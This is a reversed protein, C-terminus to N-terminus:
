AEAPVVRTAEIARTITEMGESIREALPGDIADAGCSTCHDGPVGEVHIRVGDRELDLAIQTPTAKPQHCFVCVKSM